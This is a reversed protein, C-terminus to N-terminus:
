GSLVDVLEGPQGTFPLSAAIGSTIPMLILLDIWVAVIMALACSSGCTLIYSKAFTKKGGCVFRCVFTIGWMYLVIICYNHVILYMYVDFCNQFFSTSAGFALYSVLTSTISDKQGAM